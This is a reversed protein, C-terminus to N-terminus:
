DGTRPRDPVPSLRREITTAYTSLYQEAMSKSSYHSGVRELASAVRGAIAEPPSSVATRIAKAIAEASVENALWGCRGGDLVRPIDGVPTCIVPAGHAMAELLVIPLGETRSGLVFFDAKQFLEGVDTRYGLFRVHETLSLEDVLSRLRDREPGAGAISLAMNEGDARLQAVARIVLDMGKEAGLRGVALLETAGRRHGASSSLGLTEVARNSDIGNPIITLREALAPVLVREAIGESVAVIADSRRLLLREAAEYFALRSWRSRSTWGHLTCVHIWLRGSRSVLAMLINAKYGHTHVVQVKWDGIMQLIMRLGAVDMGDNMAFRVHPISIEAAADGLPDGGDGPAVITGIIVDHGCAVSETALSLLVKEAGYFGASDIIHLIRM